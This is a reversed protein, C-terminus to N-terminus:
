HLVYIVLFLCVVPGFSALHTTQVRKKRRQGELGENDFTICLYNFFPIGLNRTRTTPLEQLFIHNTSTSGSSHRHRPEQSASIGFPDYCIANTLCRLFPLKACHGVASTM